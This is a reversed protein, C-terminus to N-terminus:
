VKATKEQLEIRQDWDMNVIPTSYISPLNDKYKERVTKDIIDFLLAKTKGLILYHPQLTINAKKKIRSMANLVIVDMILKENELFDVIEWVQKEDTTGIHILIM